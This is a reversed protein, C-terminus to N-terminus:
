NCARQESETIRHNIIGASSNWAFLYSLATFLTGKRDRIDDFSLAEISVSEAWRIRLNFVKRPFALEETGLIFEIAKWWAEDYMKTVDDNRFRAHHASSRARNKEDGLLPTFFFPVQTLIYVPRAYFMFRLDFM